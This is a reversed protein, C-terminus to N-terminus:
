RPVAYMLAYCMEQQTNEGWTVDIPPDNLQRPNTASNDWTCSVSVVDRPGIRVPEDFWYTPQMAFDYDDSRSICSEEDQPSTTSFSYASGLVHMHPMVGYVDFGFSGGTLLGMPYGREETHAAEGAPITFRDPGLGVYWMEQEVSDAIKLAYAPQDEFV